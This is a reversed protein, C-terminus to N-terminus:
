SPPTLNVQVTEGNDLDFQVIFNFIQPVNLECYEDTVPHALNAEPVVSQSEGPPVWELIIGKEGGGQFYHVEIDHYGASLEITGYASTMNSHEGDNTIVVATDVFLKSGDDSTLVFGYEGAVPAYISGRWRAVWGYRFNSLVQGQSTTWPTIGPIEPFNIHTDTLIYDPTIPGFNPIEYVCGTIDYYEAILGAVYTINCASCIYSKDTILLEYESGIDTSKTEVTIYWKQNRDVQSLPAFYVSKSEGSALTLGSAPFINDAGGEHSWGTQDNGTFFTYGLQTRYRDSYFRIRFDYDKSAPSINEYDFEINCIFSAADYPDGPDNTAQLQPLGPSLLKAGVRLNSGFQGQTTTFLRNTEVIQYDGFDVSDKTNIGFVIDSSVPIYTNATLVGKVPRSPLVFNTTFFHSAQSTLNRLTVSSLTPSLDRVQSALTVRFQLYQDTIHELSALGSSELIVNASWDSDEVNDETVGTRIQVNVSTSIPEDSEWTISKWSVLDNSGNLIESTYIGIEQDVQDAAYFVQNNPSEYAYGVNGQNDVDVIRGENVFDALDEIKISYASCCTVPPSAAEDPCVIANGHADYLAPPASINGANDRLRLYVTKETFEATWKTVKTDSVLWLGEVGNTVYQTFDRISEDHRYFFEWAPIIHKFLSDGIAVVTSTGSARQSQDSEFVINEPSDILNIDNGFSSYSKVFDLSDLNTRYVTTSDSSGVYLLAQDPSGVTKSDKIHIKNIDNDSSDFIILNDNTELNISYIRGANGTGVIMTTAFVDLDNVEEGINRYLISLNNDKIQYITGNSAGFYVTQDSGSSIGRAYQASATGGLKGFPQEAIGDTCRWINGEADTTPSGTTLYVINDITKMGTVIRNIDTTDLAQVGTWEDTTPDYRFVITPASTAMFLYTIGTREDFWPSIAAGTGVDYTTPGITVTSPITLSDFVNNIGEGIDHEYITQASQFDLPTEGDSTFNPYNSLMFGDVGSLDDTAFIRFRIKTRSLTELKEICGEPPRTDLTITTFPLSTEGSYLLVSNKDGGSLFIFQDQSTKDVKTIVSRKTGLVEKEISKQNFDHFEIFRESVEVEVQDSTLLDTLFFVSSESVVYGFDIPNRNIFVTASETTLNKSEITDPDIIYYINKDYSDETSIESNDYHVIENEIIEHSEDRFVIEHLTHLAGVWLSNTSADWRVSNVNNNIFGHTDVNLNSFTLGIMKEVGNATALYRLHKNVIAIDNIHASKMGSNRDFKLKNRANEIRWLGKDSGAWIIYNDDVEITKIIEDVIIEVTSTNPMAIYVYGTTAGEEHAAIYAKGDRDVAIDNVIKTGTATDGSAVADLTAWEKGANQSVIVGNTTGVYWIGNGGWKVATTLIGRADGSDTDVEMLLCTAAECTGNYSSTHGEIQLLKGTGINYYVLGGFTAAVVNGFTDVFLDNIRPDPWNQVTDSNYFVISQPRADYGFYMRMDQWHAVLGVNEAFDGFAFEKTDVNSVTDIGLTTTAYAHEFVQAPGPDIDTQTVIHDVTADGILQYEPYEKSSLTGDTRVLNFDYLLVLTSAVSIKSLAPNSVSRTGTDILSDTGGNYSSSFESSLPNYSCTYISNNREFAVVGQMGAFGVSPNSCDSSYSTLPQANERPLGTYYYSAGYIQSIPETRDEWAIVYQKYSSTTSISPNWANRASDSVLVPQGFGSFEASDDTLVAGSTNWFKEVLDRFGMYIASTLSNQYHGECVVYIYPYILGLKPNKFEVAEDVQYEDYSSFQMIPSDEGFQGSSEWARDANNWQAWFIKYHGDRDDEWVLHINDETDAQIDPRGKNSQTNTVRTKPNWGGSDKVSVSIESQGWSTDEYAIWIRDLSDIAVSPNKMSFQISETLVEPNSWSQGDFFSYLIQSRGNGDDHWVAHYIGSSDVAVVPKRSNGSISAPTTFLGSANMVLSYSSSSSSQLKQYILLNDGKGAIVYDRANATSIPIYVNAYFLRIRDEYFYLVEQRAGDNIYIGFGTKDLNQDEYDDAELVELDFGFSVQWGKENDVNDYWSHGHTRQSYYHIAHSSIAFKYPDYPDGSFFGTQTEVAGLSRYTTDVTFWGQRYNPEVAAIKDSPVTSMRDFDEPPIEIELDDTLFEYDPDHKEGSIQTVGNATGIYKTRSEDIYIATIPSFNRSVTALRTVENNENFQILKSSEAVDTPTWSLFDGFVFEVSGGELQGIQSFYYINTDALSKDLLYAGGTTYRFSKFLCTNENKSDIDGYEIMKLLSPNTLTGAGEIILENNMFIRINDGQAAVRFTKGSSASTIQTSSLKQGFTYTAANDSLFTVSRLGVTIACFRSGDHIYVGLNPVYDLEEIEQQNMPTGDSKDLVLGAKFEITWGTENSVNESWSSGAMRVEKTIFSSDPISSEDSVGIHVYYRQGRSLVGELIAYSDKVYEIIGTDYVPGDLSPTKTILLRFYTPKDTPEATSKHTTWAIIPDLNTLNETDVLGSITLDDIHWLVDEIILTNSTQQSIVSEGDLLKVIAYVSDGVILSPRIYENGIAYLVDNVYWEVQTTGTFTFYEDDQILYQVRLVDDVNADTPLIQVLTINSDVSDITVAITEVMSGFEIGDSPIIKTSWYDGPNTASSPLTCLNDYDTMPLNNKFWRILSGGQSHGDTDQFTYILDVHDSSTPSSPSLSYGTVFPLRNVTFSFKTWVLSDEDIDTASVQGYYTVGRSLQFGEYHYSSESSDVDISLVTGSFLSNGWNTSESSIRISYTVQAPSGADGEFTWTIYPQPAVVPVSTEAALGNVKINGIQAM